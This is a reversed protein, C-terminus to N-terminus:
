LKTRKLLTNSCKHFLKLSKTTYIQIYFYLNYNLHTIKNQFYFFSSFISTLFLIKIVWKFWTWFCFKLLESSRAWVAWAVGSYLLIHNILFILHVYWSKFCHLRCKVLRARAFTLHSVVICPLYLCM